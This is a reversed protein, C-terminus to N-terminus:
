KEVRYCGDRPPYFKKNQGHIYGMCFKHISKTDTGLTEAAHSLSEYEVGYVVWRFSKRTNRCNTKHSVWRCNDKTYGLNNDIRDICQGHNPEGMDRLFNVFSERWEDCVSIGRGGYDKYGTDTPNLCRAKIGKWIAYVRTRSMGHKTKKM